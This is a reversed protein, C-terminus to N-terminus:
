EIASNALESGLMRMMYKRHRTAALNAKERKYQSKFDKEVKKLLERHSKIEFILHMAVIKPLRSFTFYTLFGVYIAM